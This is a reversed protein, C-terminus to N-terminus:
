KQGRLAEDIKKLEERRPNIYENMMKDRNGNYMDIFIERNPPKAKNLERQLQAKRAQLSKADAKKAEGVAISTKIEEVKAKQEPTQPIAASEIATEKQVEKEIKAASAKIAQLKSLKNFYDQKWAPIGYSPTLAGVAYLGKQINDLREVPTGEGALTRSWDTIPAALGSYSLLDIFAKYRKIQSPTNLPYIYGDVAGDEPKAVKPVIDSGVIFSSIDGPTSFPILKMLAIHEPSIKTPDRDMSGSIGLIEKYTPNVMGSLVEGFNGKVLEGFLKVAEKTAISSSTLYLDKEDSIPLKEFITKTQTYGPAFERDEESTNLNNVNRELKLGKIIRKIGEPSGMNKLFNVFNNRAFGYFMLLKQLPRELATIDAADFMSKRALELAEDESRGARIADAFVSYRFAMDEITPLNGLSSWWDGFIRFDDDTLNLIRKNALNPATLTYVSKGGMTSLMDYVERATYIKSNDSSSLIIRSPDRRAVDTLTLGKAADIYNPLKGTTQYYIDAATILNAGHFRPRFNLLFTYRFDNIKEFINTITDAVATLPGRGEYARVLQSSLDEKLSSFGDEMSKSIQAAVDEGFLLKLQAAEDSNGKVISQITDEIASISAVDSLGNQRKIGLAIDEAREIITSLASMFESDKM